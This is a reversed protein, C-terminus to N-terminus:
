RLNNKIGNIQEESLKTAIKIINVDYNANLLNIATEKTVREETEKKVREETQEAIKKGYEIYGEFWCEENIYLEKIEEPMKEIRLREYATKIEDSVDNPVEEVNQANKFLYLWDKLGKKGEFFSNELDSDELSYQYLELGNIVNNPNKEDQMIYRKLPATKDKWDGEGLINIGIVRSLGEWDEDKRLRNQYASSIYGLARNDRYNLNDIQVAVAVHDGNLKCLFDLQSNREQPLIALLDNYNEQLGVILDKAATNDLEKGDSLKKKFIFSDPNQEFQRLFSKTERKRILERFNTLSEDLITTSEVDNLCAFTKVFDLRVNDDDLMHRATCDYTPRVFVQKRLGPEYDSLDNEASRRTM